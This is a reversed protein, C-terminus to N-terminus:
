MPSREAPTPSRAVGWSESFEDGMPWVRSSKPFRSALINLGTSGTDLLVPVPAGGGIRVRVVPLVGSPGGPWGRLEIPVNVHRQSHAGRSRTVLVVALIAIAFAIVRLARGPDISPLRRRTPTAAGRWPTVTLDHQEHM